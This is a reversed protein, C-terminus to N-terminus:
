CLFTMNIHDAKKATDSIEPISGAKMFGPANYFRAEQSHIKHVRLFSLMYDFVVV